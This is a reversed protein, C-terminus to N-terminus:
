PDPLTGGTCFVTDRQIRRGSVELLHVWCFRLRGAPTDQIAEAQVVAGRTTAVPDWRLFAPRIAFDQAYRDAIDHRGTRRDHEAGVHLDFEADDAYLEALRDFRQEAFCRGLAQALVIGPPAVDLWTGLRGAELDAILTSYDTM